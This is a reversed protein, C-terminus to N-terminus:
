ASGVPSSSKPVITIGAAPTVAVRVIATASRLTRSQALALGSTVQESGVRNRRVVDRAGVAHRHVDGLRVLESFSEFPPVSRQETRGTRRRNNQGFEPLAPVLKLETALDVDNRRGDVADVRAGDVDGDVVLYNRGLGPSTSSFPSRNAAAGKENDPTLFRPHNASYLGSQVFGGGCCTPLKDDIAKYRRAAGAASSAESRVEGRGSGLGADAVQEDSRGPDHEVAAAAGFDDEVVDALVDRGITHRDLKPAHGGVPHEVVHGIGIRLFLSACDIIM